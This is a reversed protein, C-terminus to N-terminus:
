LTVCRHKQAYNTHSEHLNFVASMEIVSSLGMNEHEHFEPCNEVTAPTDTVIWYEIIGEEIIMSSSYLDEFFIDRAVLDYVIVERATPETGSDLILYNEFVEIMYHADFYHIQIDDAESKYLCNLGQMRGTYGGKRVIFTSGIRENRPIEFVTFEQSHSCKYLDTVDDVDLAVDEQVFYHMGLWFGLFPLTVFIILAFYKSFITPRTLPQYWSKTNATDIIKEEPTNNDAPEM